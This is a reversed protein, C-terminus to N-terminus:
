KISKYLGPVEPVLGVIPCNQSTSGYGTQQLSSRVGNGLGTHPTYDIVHTKKRETLGCM